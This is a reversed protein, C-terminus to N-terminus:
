HVVYELAMGTAARPIEIDQFNATELLDEYIRCPLILDDCVCQLIEVLINAALSEQTLEVNTIKASNALCCKPWIRWKLNISMLIFNGRQSFYAPIFKRM